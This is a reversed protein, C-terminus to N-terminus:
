KKQRRLGSVELVVGDAGTESHHKLVNYVWESDAQAIEEGYERGKLLLARTDPGAFRHIYALLKSLPALARATVVGITGLNEPTVAEIRANHVRVSLGLERAAASLFACKRGHSEILEFRAGSGKLAIALPLAPFGGGSGLDLVTGQYPGHPDLLPLLQLSDLIHRPWLDALTERSVLNQVRQWALIHANLAVLDAHIHPTPRSFHAKYRSLADMFADM